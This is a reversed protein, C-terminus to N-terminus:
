ADMNKFLASSLFMKKYKAQQSILFNQQIGLISGPRLFRLYAIVEPAGFGYHKMMYLAILTGTRGLGARCHVAVAGDTQEVAEFFKRITAEDPISGDPYYLDLHRIGEKTFDKASYTPRNLRIM